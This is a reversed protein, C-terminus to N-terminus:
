AYRAGINRNKLPRDISQPLLMTHGLGFQKQFFDLGKRRLVLCLQKIKGSVQHLFGGFVSAGEVVRGVSNGYRSKVFRVGHIPTFDRRFFEMGKFFEERIQLAVLHQLRYPGTLKLNIGCFAFYGKVAGASMGIQKLGGINRNKLPRDPKQKKDPMGPESTAFQIYKYYM